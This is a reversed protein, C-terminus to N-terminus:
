FTLAQPDLGTGKPLEKHISGARFAPSALFPVLRVLGVVTLYERTGSM